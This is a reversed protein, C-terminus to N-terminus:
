ARRTARAGSVGRWRAAADRARLEPVKLVAAV